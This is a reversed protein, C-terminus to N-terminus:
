FHAKIIAVMATFMALIFVAFGLQVMRIRRRLIRLRLKEVHEVVDPTLHVSEPFYGIAFATGALLFLSGPVLLALGNEWGKDADYPLAMIILALYVPIAGISLTLMFQCFHRGLDISDRFIKEGLIHMMQRHPAIEHGSRAISTPNAQDM